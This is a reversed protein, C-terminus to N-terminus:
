KRLIQEGLLIATKLDFHFLFGLRLHGLVVEVFELICHLSTAFDCSRMLRIVMDLKQDM